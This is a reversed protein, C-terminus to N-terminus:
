HLSLPNTRPSGGERTTIEVNRGDASPRVEEFDGAFTGASVQRGTGLDIVAAHTRAQDSTIFVKRDAAAGMVASRVPDGPLVHTAVPRGAANILQVTTEMRAADFVVQVFRDQDGIRHYQLRRHAGTLGNRVVGVAGVPIGDFTVVNVLDTFTKGNLTTAFAKLDRANHVSGAYDGPMTFVHELRGDPGYVHVRIDTSDRFKVAVVLKGGVVEASKIALVDELDFSGDGVKTGTVYDIEVAFRREEEDSGLITKTGQDTSIIHGICRGPRRYEGLPRGNEAFVRVVCFRREGDFEISEVVLRYRMLLGEADPDDPLRDAQEPTLDLKEVDAPAPAAAPFPGAATEEGATFVIVWRGTEPDRRVEGDAPIRHIVQWDRWEPRGNPPCASCLLGLIVGVVPLCHRAAVKRAKVPWANSASIRVTMFMM